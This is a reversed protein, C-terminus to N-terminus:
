AAKRDAGRLAPHHSGVDARTVALRARLRPLLRGAQRRVLRRAVPDEDRWSELDPVARIM